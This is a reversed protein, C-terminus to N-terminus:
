GHAFLCNLLKRRQKASPRYHAKTEKAFGIHLVARVQISGMRKDLCMIPFQSYIVNYQNPKHVKRQIAVQRTNWLFELIGILVAAGIGVVVVVFVGGVKPMDLEDSGEEDPPCQLALYACIYFM